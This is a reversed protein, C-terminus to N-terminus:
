KKASKEASLTLKLLTLCSKKFNRTLKESNSSDSSSTLNTACKNKLSRRPRADRKKLNCRKRECRSISSRESRKWGVCLKRAM